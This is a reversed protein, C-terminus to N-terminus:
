LNNMSFSCVESIHLFINTLIVTIVNLEPCVEITVTAKMTNSATRFTIACPSAHSPFHLPFLLNSLTAVVRARYRPVHDIWPRGASGCEEVALLRSFQSGRRNLHVRGNRQFVFDPKQAHAMVNWVHEVDYRFHAVRWKRVSARLYMLLFCFFICLRSLVM